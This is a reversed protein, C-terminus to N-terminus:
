SLRKLLLEMFEEVEESEENWHPYESALFSTASRKNECSELYDITRNFSEEDGEFLTNIFMFRQNISIHKRISTIKQRQHIEAISPKQSSSHHDNLTQFADNNSEGNGEEHDIPTPEDFHEEQQVQQKDDYTDATTGYLITESLPEITSFKTMYGDVDEPSAQINQFVENLLHGADEKSIRQNGTAEVKEILAQLLNSNIKVYKATRKLEQLSLEEKDPDHILHMYYDYPSFILLITDYTANQLLPFFDDERIAIQRSLINMFEKLADKVEPAEYNFYPSKIKSAEKRWEALLHRIVFLNIQRIESLELIEKGTIVPQHSFHSFTLKECFTNCYAKIESTNLNNEM